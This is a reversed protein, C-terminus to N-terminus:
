MVETSLPRYIGRVTPDDLPVVRVGPTCSVYNSEAIRAYLRGHQEIFGTILAGHGIRGHFLLVDGVRAFNVDANVPVTWADGRVNVALVERLYRICECQVPAAWTQTPLVM